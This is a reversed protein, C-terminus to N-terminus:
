KTLDDRNQATKWLAMPHDEIRLLIDLDDFLLEPRYYGGRFLSLFEIDRDTYFVTEKLYDKVTRKADDLQFVERDRIVPVLDTLVKHRTINDISATSYALLPTNTAIAFYFMVCKRYIESDEEKIVNSKIMYDMDYLDRVAGRTLLAVTKAAYIEIPSLINVQYEVETLLTKVSRHETPLVHCRLSYNPEIKINNRIGASNTYDYRFSDLSHSNRSKESLMYGESAMYRALQKNIEQRQEIMEERTCKRIYDLDIDVSFRPLNFLVLNIATGGKLAFNNKLYDVSDFFRLIEQLRCVKELTDRVVHMEQALASLERKDFIPM